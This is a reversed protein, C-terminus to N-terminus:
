WSFVESSVVLVVSVKFCALELSAFPVSVGPAPPVDFFRIIFRWKLSELNLAQSAQGKIIKADVNEQRESPM